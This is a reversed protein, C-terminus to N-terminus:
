HESIDTHSLHSALQLMPQKDMQQFKGLHAMQSDHM